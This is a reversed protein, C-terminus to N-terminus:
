PLLTKGAGVAFSSYEAYKFANNNGWLDVKLTTTALQTLGHLTELGIFYEGSADGFGAKYGAWNHSHFNVSDDYRKFFVTWGGPSDTMDCWVKVVPQSPDPRILYQGDTTFGRSYLESCDLAYSWKTLADGVDTFNEAVTWNAAVEGVTGVVRTNSYTICQRVGQGSAIASVSCLEHNESCQRTCDTLSSAESDKLVSLSTGSALGTASFLFRNSKASSDGTSVVRHLSLGIFCVLVIVRANM